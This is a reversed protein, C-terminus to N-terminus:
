YKDKDLCDSILLAGQFAMVVSLPICIVPIIHSIMMWFIEKNNIYNFYLDNIIDYFIYGLLFIIPIVLITGLICKWKNKLFNKM